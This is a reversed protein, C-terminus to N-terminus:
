PVSSCPSASRRRACQSASSTQHWAEGGSKSVRVRPMLVRPRALRVPTQRQRNRRWCAPSVRRAALRRSPDLRFPLHGIRCVMSRTGGVAAVFRGGCRTRRPRRCPRHRHDRDKGGLTRGLVVLNGATRISIRDCTKLAPPGEMRPESRGPRESLGARLAPGIALLRRRRWPKINKAASRVALHACTPAKASVIKM